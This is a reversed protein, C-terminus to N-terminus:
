STRLELDVVKQELMKVQEELYVIRSEFARRGLMELTNDAAEATQLHDPNVCRSVGCKHHIPVGDILDGHALLYMVRHAKMVRSDHRIDPYAARGKYIWLMCDGDPTCNDLM